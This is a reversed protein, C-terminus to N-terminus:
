NQIDFLMRLNSVLKLLETMNQSDAIIGYNHPIPRLEKLRSAAVQDLKETLVLRLVPNNLWYYLAQDVDAFINSKNLFRVRLYVFCKCNTDGFIIAIDSFTRFELFKDLLNLSPSISLDIKVYPIQTDIM